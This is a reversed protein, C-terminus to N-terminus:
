YHEVWSPGYPPSVTGNFSPHDSWAYDPIVWSVQQLQCNSIDNFIPAGQLPGTYFSMHQWEYGGNETGCAANAAYRADNEGYCVEPIAAPADWIVGANPSYYRWTVSKDCNGNTCNSSTVLSDHTYCETELPDDKTTRDPQIWKSYGNQGTYPCGSDNFGANNLVFDWHYDHRPDNPAVPASTGTFLFQHAEFSPGENTQFMYNAFGYAKAIDFYPQVDSQQVYSYASPAQECRQLSPYGHCFGDM